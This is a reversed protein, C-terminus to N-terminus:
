CRARTTTSAKPFFKSLRAPRSSSVSFSDTSIRASPDEVSADPGAYTAQGGAAGGGPSTHLERASAAFRHLACLRSFRAARRACHAPANRLAACFLFFHLVFGQGSRYEFHFWGSKELRQLLRRAGERLAASEDLLDQHVAADEDAAEALLEVRRERSLISDRLLLEAHLLAASKDLPMPEGEFEHMYFRTLLEWCLPALQGSLPSFLGGPFATSFLLLHPPWQRM